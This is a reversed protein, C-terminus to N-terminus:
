AKRRKQNANMKIVKRTEEITNKRKGRNYFYQAMGYLGLAYIAVVATHWLTWTHLITFCFVSLSASFISFAMFIFMVKLDTFGLYATHHTTHDKGGIFPSQKRNIRRIFVTTTDIMPVLFALLPIIFQQTQVIGGAPERYSWFLPIAIAGLFIGLFQSGTDGMYMKAPSHNFFLFGILAGLMGILMTPIIESVNNHLFSIGLGALIVSISVTTSIGDMNDIMNISNMIGIIWFVTFMYDIMTIESIPILLGTGALINACLFQGVFKLIPNTGYSDDAWGLIFGLSCSLLIGIMEKNLFDNNFLIAYISISFLFLLYFSFGGLLPKPVNAWRIQNNDGLTKNGFNYYARLFLKNVIFSFGIAFLFFLVNFIIMQKSM